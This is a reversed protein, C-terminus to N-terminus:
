EKDGHDIAGLYVAHDIVSLDKPHLDGVLLKFELVSLLLQYRVRRLELQLDSHRKTVHFQHTFLLEGSRIKALVLQKSKDSHSVMSSLLQLQQKYQLIVVYQQEVQRDLNALFLSLEDEAAIKKFAMQSVKNSTRGGQYLPVHIDIGIAAEESGPIFGEGGVLDRNAYYAALNVTPYHGSKAQRWAQISQEKLAQLQKSNLNKQRAMQQWNHLAQDDSFLKPLIESRIALGSLARDADSESGGGLQLWAALSLSYNSQASLLALEIRGLELQSDFYQEESMLGSAVLKDQRVLQGRKGKLQAQALNKQERTLLVNVFKQALTLVLDQEAKEKRLVLSVQHAKAGKVARFRPADYLPQIVSVRIEQSKFNNDQTSYTVGDLLKLICDNVNPANQCSGADGFADGQYSLVPDSSEYHNQYVGMNLNVQPLILAKVSKNAATDAAILSREIALQANNGLAFQYADFLSISSPTSEESFSSVSVCVFLLGCLAKRCYQWELRNIASVM